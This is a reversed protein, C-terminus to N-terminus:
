KEGLSKKLHGLIDDLPKSGADYNSATVLLNKMKPDLLIKGKNEDLLKRDADDVHGRLNHFGDMAWKDVGGKPPIPQSPPVVQPAQMQQPQVQTAQPQGPIMPAGQGVSSPGTSPTNFNPAPPESPMPSNQQLSNGAAKSLAQAGPRAAMRLVNMAPGAETPVSAIAAPTASILKSTNQSVNTAGLARYGAYRAADGIQQTPDAWHRFAEGQPTGSPGIKDPFSGLVTQMDKVKQIKDGFLVSQVEPTLKNIKTILKAPDVPSNAPDIPNSLSSNRLDQLKLNKITEFEEPFYTHVKQLALYNNTKFLKQAVQEPPMESFAEIFDRPNKAKIGFLPGVDRLDGMLAAHQDMANRYQGVMQQGINTGEPGPYAQQALTQFQTDRFDSLKDKIKTLTDVMNRDNNTAAQEIKNGLLKRTDEIDALSQSGMIKNTTGQVLSNVENPDLHQQGIKAVQVALKWKDEAAPIMKPLEQNFPEYSMKINNAKEGLNALVGKSASDGAQYASSNNGSVLDEAASQLGTQIPKLNNRVVAGAVSPSQSLSSELGQVTPSDTLMGPTAKFGLRQSAEKIASASAAGSGAEGGAKSSVEIADAVPALAEAGKGIMGIGPGLLNLPNAAADIGIGAIDANSKGRFQLTKSGDPNQLYVDRNSNDSSLGAKAAIDSGSPAQDTMNAFQHKAAAFPNNGNQAAYIAARTPAGTVSDLAKAGTSIIGPDSSSTKEALYNDPSFTSAKQALYQDPNFAPDAM